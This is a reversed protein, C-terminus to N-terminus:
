TLFWSRAHEDAINRRYERFILSPKWLESSVWSIQRPLSPKPVSWVPSGRLPSILWFTSDDPHASKSISLNSNIHLYCSGRWLEGVSRQIGLHWSANWALKKCEKITVHIGLPSRYERADVCRLRSTLKSTIGKGVRIQGHDREEASWTSGKRQIEGLTHLSISVWLHSPSVQILRQRALHMNSYINRRLYSKNIYQAFGTM